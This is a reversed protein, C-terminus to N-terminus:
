RMGNPNSWSFEGTQSNVYYSSDSSSDYVEEWQGAMAPAYGGFGGGGGGGGGGFGGTSGFGGPAAGFAGGGFQQAPAPAGYAPVGGGAFGGPAIMPMPPGGMQPPQQQVLENAPPPNWQFAGTINNIYYTAGTQYDYAQSWTPTQLNRQSPKYGKKFSKKKNLKRNQSSTSAMSSTRALQRSSGLNRSSVLRPDEGMM